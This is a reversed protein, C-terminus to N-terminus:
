PEDLWLQSVQNAFSCAPIERGLLLVLTNNTL